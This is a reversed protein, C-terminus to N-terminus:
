AAFCPPGRHHAVPLPVGLAAVALLWFDPAAVIRAPAPIPVAVLETITTIAMGMTHLLKVASSESYRLFVITIAAAVTHSFWMTGNHAAMHAMTSEHTASMGSVDMLEQNAAALDPMGRDVSALSFILHFLGQSIMVATVLNRLSLERGALSTCVLASVALSSLVLFPHPTDGGGVVHSLAAASTAFVAATWGRVLRAGLDKVANGQGM